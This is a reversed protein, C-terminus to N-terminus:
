RGVVMDLVADIMQHTKDWRTPQECTGVVQQARRAERCLHGLAEVLEERPTDADLIQLEV